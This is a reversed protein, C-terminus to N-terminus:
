IFTEHVFTKDYRNKKLVMGYLILLKTACSIVNQLQNRLVFVQITQFVFFYVETYHDKEQMQKM